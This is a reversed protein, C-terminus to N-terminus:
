PSFFHLHFPEILFIFNLLTISLLIVYSLLAIAHDVSVISMLIVDSLLAFSWFIRNHLVNAHLNNESTRANDPIQNGGHSGAM